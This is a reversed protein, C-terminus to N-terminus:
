SPVGRMIEALAARSAVVLRVVVQWERLATAPRRAATTM